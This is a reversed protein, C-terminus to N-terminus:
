IAGEVFATLQHTANRALSERNRDYYSTMRADAHGASNQVDRASVGADLSLTVFSHRFSHPSISKGRIGAWEAYRKVLRQVDGRSLRKGPTRMSEFLPGGTRGDVLQEIAWSTRPSLPITQTKDGKRRVFITKYGRERSIDEVDIGVVESVRLGNLGLLCVIACDRSSRKEALEIIQGLEVRTLYATKSVREIRPRRIYACPSGEIYGDLVATRYYGSLANLRHVVTHVSKGELEEMERMWLQIHTRRVSKLPDLQHSRCWTFWAKLAIAYNNRTNANRYSSLFSAACVQWDPAAQPEEYPVVLGNALTKLTM